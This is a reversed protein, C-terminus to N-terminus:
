GELSSYADFKQAVTVNFFVKMLKQVRKQVSTLEVQKENKSEEQTTNQESM